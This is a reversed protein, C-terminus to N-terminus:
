LMLALASKGLDLVLVVLPRGPLRDPLVRKLPAVFEEIASRLKADFFVALRKRLLIGFPEISGNSFGLL